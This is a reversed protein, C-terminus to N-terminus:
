SPSNTNALYRQPPYSKRLKDPPDTRLRWLGHRFDEVVIGLEGALYDSILVEVEIDSILTDCVVLPSQVDQEDIWVSTSSPLIYLRAPGAVTAYVEIRAELLHQYLGLDRALRAPLLIQPTNAEFGSNVLASTSIEKSPDYRSRIGLRVRVALARCWGDIRTFGVSGRRLLRIDRM